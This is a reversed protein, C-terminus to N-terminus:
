PKQAVLLRTNWQGWEHVIKFGAETLWAQHDEVTKLDNLFQHHYAWERLVTDDAAKEVLHHYHHAYDLAAQHKDVVTMLDGIVIFGGSNLADFIKGVLNRAGSVNQHHFGIVSLIVNQNTPLNVNNYDGLIYAVESGLKKRAGALMTKSFDIVTLETNLFVDRVVTSTIGTGVGLDLVRLCENKNFHNLLFNTIQTHLEHHFPIANVIDRDYQEMTYRDYNLEFPQVNTTKAIQM